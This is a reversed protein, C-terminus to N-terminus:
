ASGQQRWTVEGTRALPSTAVQPVPRSSPLPGPGDNKRGLVAGLVGGIVATVPLVVAGLVRKRPRRTALALDACKAEMQQLQAAMESAQETKEAAKRELQEREAKLAEAECSSDKRERLSKTLDIELQTRRESVSNLQQIWSQERGKLVEICLDKARLQDQLKAILERRNMGRHTELGASLASAMAVEDEEIVSESSDEEYGISGLSPLEGSAIKAEMARVREVLQAENRRSTALESVRLEVMAELARMKCEQEQQCADQIQHAQTVNDQRMSALEEDRQRMVAEMEMVLQEMMEELRLREAEVHMARESMDLLVKNTVDRTTSSIDITSRLHAGEFQLALAKTRWETAEKDKEEVEERLATLERQQGAFHQKVEVLEGSMREIQAAQSSIKARQGESAQSYQSLEENAEKLQAALENYVREPILGRPTSLERRPTPISSRTGPTRQAPSPSYRKSTPTREAVGRERGGAEVSDGRSYSWHRSDVSRRSSVSGSPEAGSRTPTAGYTRASVPSSMNNTSARIGQLRFPGRSASSSRPSLSPSPAPLKKM